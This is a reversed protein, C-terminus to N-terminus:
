SVLQGVDVLAEDFIVWTPNQCWFWKLLHSRSGGLPWLPSISFHSSNRRFPKASTKALAAEEAAYHHGDLVGKVLIVPLRPGIKCGAGANLHHAVVERDGVGFADALAHGLFGAVAQQEFHVLDAGDRLGQLRSHQPSLGM